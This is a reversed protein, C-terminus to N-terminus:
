ELKKHDVVFRSGELVILEYNAGSPFRLSFPYVYLYNTRHRDGVLTISQFLFGTGWLTDVENIKGSIKILNQKNQIIKPLSGFVPLIALVFVIPFSLFLIRVPIELATKRKGIKTEKESESMEAIGAYPVIGWYIGFGSLFGFTLCISIVRGIWKPWNVVDILIYPTMFFVVLWAVWLFSHKEKKKM